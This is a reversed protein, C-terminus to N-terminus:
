RKRVSERLQAIMGPAHDLWAPRNAQRCAPRAPVAGPVNTYSASGRRTLGMQREADFRQSRSPLRFAVVLYQGIFLLSLAGTAQARSPAVNRKAAQPSSSGFGSSSLLPPVDDPPAGVPPEAVPPVEPAAVPPVCGVPPPGVPPAAPVGLPPEPPALPAPPAGPPEPPAAPLAPAGPPVPPIGPPALPMPPIIHREGSGIPPM